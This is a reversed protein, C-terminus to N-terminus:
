EGGERMGPILEVQIVKQDLDINKVFQSVLPIMMDGVELVEHAPYEMVEDVEGLEEGDTTVVRLGVLDEVLYEGEELEPKEDAPGELYQWQLREAATADNIGSLKLVFRGRHERSAEVTVWDGSLRLRAGKAFREHFDTLPQVKVEGKLGFAGVIQGVRVTEGAM